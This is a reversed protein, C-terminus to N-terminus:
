AQTLTNATDWTVILSWGSLYPLGGASHITAGTATIFTLDAGVISPAPFDTTQFLHNAGSALNIVNSHALLSNPTAAATLVQVTRFLLSVGITATPGIFNPATVQPAQIVHYASATTPVTYTGGGGIVTNIITGSFFAAPPYGTDGAFLPLMIFAQGSNLVTNSFGGFMTSPAANGVSMQVRLAGASSGTKIGKAWIEIARMDNGYDPQSVPSRTTKHPIFLDKLPM